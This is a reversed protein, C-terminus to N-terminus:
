QWCFSYISRSLSTFVSVAGPVLNISFRERCRLQSGWKILECNGLAARETFCWLVHSHFIPLLSNSGSYPMDVPDCEFILSRSPDARYLSVVMCWGWCGWFCAFCFFFFLCSCGNWFLSLDSCWLNPQPQHLGCHALRCQSMNEKMRFLFAKKNMSLPSPNGFFNFLSPLASCQNKRKAGSRNVSFLILLPWWGLSGAPNHTISLYVHSPSLLRTPTM